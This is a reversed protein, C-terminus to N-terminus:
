LVKNSFLKSKLIEQLLTKHLVQIDVLLTVGVDSGVFWVDNWFASMKFDLRESNKSGYSTKNWVWMM